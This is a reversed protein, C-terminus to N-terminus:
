WVMKSLHTLCLISCKFEMKNVYNNYTRTLMNWNDNRLVNMKNGSLKEVLAKFFKLIEFVEYKKKLFYVCYYRSFYDIFTLVYRSNGYSPTPIHGIMYSHILYLVQVDRRAKGKEYKCEEHKEVICGKCTGNFFKISPLGEVMNEKSLCQIYRYKLNGFM